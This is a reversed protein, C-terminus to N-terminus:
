RRQINHRQGAAVVAGTLADIETPRGAIRDFYMSTGADPPYTLLTALLKEPEDSTLGAGETALRLSSLIPYFKPALDSQALVFKL